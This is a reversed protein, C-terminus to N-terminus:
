TSFLSVRGSQVTLFPRGGQVTLFIPVWVINVLGCTTHNKRVNVIDNVLHAVVGAVLPEPVLGPVTLALTQATQSGNEYYKNTEDYRCHHSM